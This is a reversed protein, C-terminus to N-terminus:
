PRRRFIHAPKIGIYAVLTAIMAVGAMVTGLPVEPIVHPASHFGIYFGSPSWKDPTTPDIGEAWLVHFLENRVKFEYTGPSLYIYHTGDSHTTGTGTHLPNIACSHHYDTEVEPTTFVKCITTDTATDVIWVSYFDGYWAMDACNIEIAGGSWILIWTDISWGKSGAFENGWVCDDAYTTSVVVTVVTGGDITDDTNDVVVASAFGSLSVIAFLGLFVLLGTRLTKRKM